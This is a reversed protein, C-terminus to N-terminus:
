NILHRTSRQHKENPDKGHQEQMAPQIEVLVCAQKIRTEHSEYGLTGKLHTENNVTMAPTDKTPNLPERILSVRRGTAGDRILRRSGVGPLSSGVFSDTSTGSAVLTTIPIQKLRKINQRRELNGHQRTKVPTKKMRNACIKHTVNGM